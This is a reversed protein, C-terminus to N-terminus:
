PRLEAREGTPLSRERDGATIAGILRPPTQICGILETPRIM